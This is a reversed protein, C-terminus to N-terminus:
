RRFIMDLVLAVGLAPVIWQSWHILIATFADPPDIGAAFDTWPTGSGNSNTGVKTVM